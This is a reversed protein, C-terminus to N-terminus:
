RILTVTGKLHYIQGTIDDAKLIYIYTGAAAPQGNIYGDWEQGMNSTSFVTQGWRNYITFYHLKQIGIYMPKLRDNLGNGNPTFANPVYVASGKFVTIHITDKAVCGEATTVTLEYTQDQNITAVPNPTTSNDLGYSPWWNFAGEGSGHLAFPKGGVVTTDNGAFAYSQNIFINGTHVESSCGDDAIAWVKVPYNGPKDFRHSANASHITQNDGFDWNWQVIHTQNDSQSGTFQILQNACGNLPEIAIQPADKITFSKATWASTCGFESVAQLQLQNTGAPINNLVPQRGAAINSGNLKWNWQTIAGVRNTSFDNIAPPAHFCTDSITFDAKPGSGVVITKTLTDSQCGDKGTIALKVKYIGPTPYYHTPPAAATSSTGDGFSWYYNSVPAFSESANQFYVTANLCTTDSPLDTKFNPNLATCFQQLNYSGGTAASFGWYVMPDNNFIDKVMDVQAEVRLIGDFYARLWKTQTDWSIRLLHWQCDEINDSTASAPVPGALDNGHKVVGNAQISIHDYPPDNLDNVPFSPDINQWTDLAIGISPTVGSFGLGSGISGVSRAVTQLIFVMGDAGDNDRCGLNVNFVFDFSQGLDIKNKNWVSGSVNNVEPTLTYCNCKDQRAFGNLIYTDTQAFASIGLFLFILISLHQKMCFTFIVWLVFHVTIINNGTSKKEGTPGNSVPAPPIVLESIYCSEM